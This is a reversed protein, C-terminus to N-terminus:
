RENRIRCGDGLCSRLVSLNLPIACLVCIKPLEDVLTYIMAHHFISVAELPM